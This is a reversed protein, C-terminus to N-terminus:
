QSPSGSPEFQCCISSGSPVSRISHSVAFPLVGMSQGYRATFPLMTSCSAASPRMSRWTTGSYGRVFCGVLWELSVMSLTLVSSMSLGALRPASAPNHWQQRYPRPHVRPDMRLGSSVSMLRVSAVRASCSQSSSSRRLASAIALRFDNSPRCISGSM